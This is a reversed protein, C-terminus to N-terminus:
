KVCIYSGSTVGAAPQAVIYSCTQTYKHCASLSWGARYTLVQVALSQCAICSHGILSGWGRGNLLAVAALERNGRVCRCELWAQQVVSLM